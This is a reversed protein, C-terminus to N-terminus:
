LLLRPRFLFINLTFHIISTDRILFMHEEQDQRVHHKRQMNPLAIEKFNRYLLYLNKYKKMTHKDTTIIM